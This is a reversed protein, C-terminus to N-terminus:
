SKQKKYSINRKTMLLNMSTNIKKKKKNGQNNQKFYSSKLIKM